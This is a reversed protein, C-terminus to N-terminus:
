WALSAALAGYSVGGQPGQSRGVGPTLTWGGGVDIAAKLQASRLRGGEHLRDHLLEGTLAVREARWTLGLQHSRDLAAEERNVASVRGPLLPALLGAPSTSAQSTTKRYRHHMTAAQLTLAPTVAVAAHVGVGHGKLAQEVPAGAGAVVGRARRHTADLGVRVTDAAQWDLAAAVDHQRLAAGTV